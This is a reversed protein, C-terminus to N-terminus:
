LSSQSTAVNVIFTIILLFQQTTWRLMNLTKQQHTFITLIETERTM